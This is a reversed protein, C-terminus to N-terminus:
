CEPASEFIDCESQTPAMTVKIEPPLGSEEQDPQLM